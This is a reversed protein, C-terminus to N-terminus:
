ATAFLRLLEGLHTVSLDAESPPQNAGNTVFCTRTGAARGALIDDVYDGVMLTGQAKSGLRRLAEFVADPAPKTPMGSLRHIVVEFELGLTRLTAEVPDPHNRTIVATKLGRTHLWNVLELAGQNPCAMRAAQQETELIVAEKAAREEAPLLALAAILSGGGLPLRLRERLAKFDIVPVTLTGDLDFLVTNISGLM